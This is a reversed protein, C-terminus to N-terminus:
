IELDYYQPVYHIKGDSSKLYLWISQWRSIHEDFKKTWIFKQVADKLSSACITLELDCDLIDSYFGPKLGRASSIITYEQM